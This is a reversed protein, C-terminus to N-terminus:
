MLQYTISSEIENAFQKLMIRFDKDRKIDIFIHHKVTEPVTRGWLSTKWTLYSYKLVGYKSIKTFLRSEDYVNAVVMVVEYMKQRHGVSLEFKLDAM